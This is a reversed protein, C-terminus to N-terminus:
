AVHLMWHGCGQPMVGPAGFPQLGGSRALLTATVVIGFSYLARVLAM